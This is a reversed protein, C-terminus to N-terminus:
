KLMKELEKVSKGKLEEDKKESILGLIKQNYEKVEKADRLADAEEVKTSLIDLVIDFQLKITRDKTTKKDLFSKGKSNKYAEELSVALNDLTLEEARFARENGVPLDWLQEVTLIGKSTNFRLKIQSAQKYM